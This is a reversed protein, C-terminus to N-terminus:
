KVDNSKEGKVKYLPCFEEFAYDCCKCYGDESQAKCTKCSQTACHEEIVCKQCDYQKTM